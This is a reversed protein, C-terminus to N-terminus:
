DFNMLKDAFEKKVEDDFGAVYNQTTKINGHGLSEQIFEMSAGNRIANTAFSHRAWLTSIQEPLDNAKCLKKLHQNIFRTFNKIRHQIQQPTLNDSIVDFILSEPTKNDSGYKEIVGNTFDNLYAVVPKLNGKSTIRTKARYFEVKGGEIDKFRLLAIDKINMGNCAYSFFWYDKAKQQEPTAAKSHFLVGLQEKSLAKKTNKAAPVQYKRKGFPYFEKEIEKDDIARNFAARLTRLYMSVTTLSREKEDVMYYEYDKLWGPTIDYLTLKNFKERSKQAVFGTLSKRSLNYTSATGVQGRSNLETIIQNYHYSVNVGDGPKRYLQREFQEFTFPNLKEAVKNAKAEVSQIKIRLTKYEKRPKTTNWISDFEKETFEFVTPYMKQKRPNPTYVRLKVPYKRNAKERRTDLYISISYKQDM